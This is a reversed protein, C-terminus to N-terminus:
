LSPNAEIDVQKDEGTTFSKAMAAELQKARRRQAVAVGVAILAVCGSVSAAAILAVEANAAESAKDQEEKEANNLFEALSNAGQATFISGQLNDVCTGSVVDSYWEQLNIGNASKSYFGDSGTHTHLIGDWFFSCTNPTNAVKESQFRMLGGSFNPGANGGPIDGCTPSAWGIFCFFNLGCTPQGFSYFLAIVADTNQSVFSFIDSTYKAYLFDYYSYFGETDSFCQPCDAPLQANWTDRWLRNLCPTLVESDFAIGSDAILTSSSTEIGPSITTEGTRYIFGSRIFDYNVSAGFSGASEGTVILSTLGSNFRESNVVSQMVLNVQNRGKFRQTGGVNGVKDGFFVDGTCYPLFV